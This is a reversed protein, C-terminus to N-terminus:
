SAGLFADHVKQLIPRGKKKVEVTRSNGRGRDLVVERPCFNFCSIAM